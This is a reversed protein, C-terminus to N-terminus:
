VDKKDKSINEAEPKPPNFVAGSEAWKVLLEVMKKRDQFGSQPAAADDRFLTTKYWGQKVRRNNDRYVFEMEPTLLRLLKKFKDLGNTNIQMDTKFTNADMVPSGLVIEYFASSLARIMTPSSYLSIDRFERGTINETVLKKFDPIEAVLVDFFTFAANYVDDRSM